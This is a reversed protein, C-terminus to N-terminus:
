VCESSCMTETELIWFGWAAIVRPAPMNVPTLVLALTFPSFCSTVTLNSVGAGSGASGIVTEDIRNRIMELVVGIAGCGM